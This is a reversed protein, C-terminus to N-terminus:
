LKVGIPLPTKPIFCWKGYGNKDLPLQIYGKEKMKSECEPRVQIYGQAQGHGCCCGITIKVENNQRNIEAVLCTDCGFGFMTEASCNDSGIKVKRCHFRALLELMDDREDEPIFVNGSRGMVKGNVVVTREAIAIIDAVTECLEKDTM